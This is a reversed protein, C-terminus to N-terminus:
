RPPQEGRGAKRVRDQGVPDRDDGGRAAGQAREVVHGPYRQQLTLIESKTDFIGSKRDHRHRHKDQMEMEAQIGQLEVLDPKTLDQAAAQATMEYQRQDRTFGAMRPQQMTIKTGSVM